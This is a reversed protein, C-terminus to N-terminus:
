GDQDPHIQTTTGKQIGDNEIRKGLEGLLELGEACPDGKMERPGPAGQICRGGVSAGLHQEYDGLLKGHQM